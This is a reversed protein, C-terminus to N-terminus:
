AAHHPPSAAHAHRAAAPGSWRAEMRTRGRADVVPVWTLSPRGDGANIKDRM